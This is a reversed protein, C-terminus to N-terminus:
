CQNTTIIEGKLM